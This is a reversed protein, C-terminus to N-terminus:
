AQNLAALIDGYGGADRPVASHGGAMELGIGVRDVGVTKFDVHEAWEDAPPILPELQPDGERRRAGEV